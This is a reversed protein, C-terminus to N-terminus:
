KSAPRGVPILYLPAAGAPLHLVKAVEEDGFAGVPVGGAQLEM